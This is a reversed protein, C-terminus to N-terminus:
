PIIKGVNRRGNKNMCRLRYRIIRIYVYTRPGGQAPEGSDISRLKNKKMQYKVCRQTEHPNLNILIYHM